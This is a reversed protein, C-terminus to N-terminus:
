TLLFSVRLLSKYYDSRNGNVTHVFPAILAGVLLLRDHVPSHVVLIPRPKRQTSVFLTSVRLLARDFYQLSWSACQDHVAGVTSVFLTSTMLLTRHVILINNRGLFRM